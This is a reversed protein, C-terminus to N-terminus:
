GWVLSCFTSARWRRAAALGIRGLLGPLQLLRPTSVTHPAAELLAQPDQSDHATNIRNGIRIGYEKFRGVSLTQDDLIETTQGNNLM